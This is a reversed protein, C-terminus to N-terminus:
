GHDGKAGLQGALPELEERVEPLVPLELAKPRHHVEKARLVPQFAHQELFGVLEKKADRKTM